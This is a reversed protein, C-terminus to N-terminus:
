KQPLPPPPDVALPTLVPFVREEFVDVLHDRDGASLEEWDVFRIGVAELAPAVDKTFIMAQRAVLENSQQRIERMQEAPDRGDPAPTRLGAEVQRSLAAVRVQFFEDLNTSFIALFKARELLPIAPDEALALVRGNFDLWSLERNLYRHRPDQIPGTDAAGLSTDLSTMWGM